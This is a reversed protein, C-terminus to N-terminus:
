QYKQQPVKPSSVKSLRSLNVIEIYVTYEYVREYFYQYVRWQLYAILFCVNQIFWLQAIFVEHKITNITIPFM